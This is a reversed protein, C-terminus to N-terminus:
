YKELRGKWVFKSSILYLPNLLIYIPYIIIFGLLYLPRQWGMILGQFVILLILLLSSPSLHMLGFLLLITALIIYLGTYKVISPAKIKMKSAWRKRQEIGTKLNSPAATNIYLNLYTYSAKQKFADMLGFYDDGSAIESQYNLKLSCRRIWFAGSSWYPFGIFQGIFRGLYQQYMYDSSWFYSWFNQGNMQVGGLLVDYDELRIHSLQLLFDSPISVDADLYLVYDCKDMHKEGYLLAAKKGKENSSLITEFSLRHQELIAKGEDESHDDIWYLHIKQYLHESASINAQIQRQLLPLHRAENRFPILIHITNNQSKSTNDTRGYSKSGLYISLLLLIFPLVLLIM